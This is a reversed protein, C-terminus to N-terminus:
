PASTLPRAVEELPRREADVALWWAVFGAALMLVFGVVYGMAVAVPEGTGILARVAM